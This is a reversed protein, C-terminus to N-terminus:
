EKQGDSRGGAHDVVIRNYADRLEQPGVWGDGSEDMKSFSNRLVEKRKPELLVTSIISRTAETTQKQRIQAPSLPPIVKPAKGPELVAETNM